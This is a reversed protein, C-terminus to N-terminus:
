LKKVVLFVLTVPVSITWVVSIIKIKEFLDNYESSWKIIMIPGIYTWITASIIALQRRYSYQFIGEYNSVLYSSLVFLLPVTSVVFAFIWVNKFKGKHYLNNIFM